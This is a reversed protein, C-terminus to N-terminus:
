AEKIIKAVIMIAVATFFAGLFIQLLTELSLEVAVKPLKGDKLDKIFQSNFFDNIGNM